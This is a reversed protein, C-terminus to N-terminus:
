RLGEMLRVRMVGRATDVQLIVQSIAPLLIEGNPGSVAYVDNSGTIIIEIIRGLDEGAETFVQMGILQYHFYEGDPLEPSAEAPALLEQGTLARAAAPSDIGELKLIITDGSSRSGSRVRFPEGQLFLTEGPDFRYPLETLVQARVEGHVGHSGLVRGVVAM